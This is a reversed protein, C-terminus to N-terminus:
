PSLRKRKNGVPLLGKAARTRRNMVEDSVLTPIYDDAGDVGKRRLMRRMDSRAGPLHAVAFLVTGSWRLEAPDGPKVLTAIFESAVLEEFNPFYWRPQAMLQEAMRRSHKLYIRRGLNECMDIVFSEGACREEGELYQTCHSLYDSVYSMYQKFMVMEVDEPKCGHRRIIKDEALDFLESLRKHILQDPKHM